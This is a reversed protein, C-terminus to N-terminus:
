SRASASERVLQLSQCGAFGGRGRARRLDEACRPTAAVFGTRRQRPAPVGSISEILATECLTVPVPQENRKSARAEIDRRLGQFLSPKLLLQEVDYASALLLRITEPGETIIVDASCGAKLNRFGDLRPDDADAGELVRYIPGFYGQLSEEVAAASAAADAPAPKADVAAPAALAM